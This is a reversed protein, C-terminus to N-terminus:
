WGRGWYMVLLELVNLTEFTVVMFIKIKSLNNSNCYKLLFISPFYAFLLIEFLMKTNGTVVSMKLWSQNLYCLMKGFNVLAEICDASWAEIQSKKTLVLNRRKLPRQGQFTECILLWTKSKHKQPASYLALCCGCKFRQQLSESVSALLCPVVLYRGRSKVRM